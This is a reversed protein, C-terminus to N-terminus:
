RADGRKGADLSTRFQERPSILFQLGTGWQAAAGFLPSANIIFSVSSAEHTVVPCRPRVMNPKRIRMADLSTLTDKGMALLAGPWHPATCGSSSAPAM